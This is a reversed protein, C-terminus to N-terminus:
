YQKQKVYEEYHKGCTVGDTTYNHRSHSLYKRYYTYKRQMRRKVKNNIWNPKLEKNNKLAVRPIFKIMGDCIINKIM